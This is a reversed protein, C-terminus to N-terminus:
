ESHFQVICRATSRARWLVDNQVRRLRGDFKSFRHYQQLVFAPRTYDLDMEGAFNVIDNVKCLVTNTGCIM